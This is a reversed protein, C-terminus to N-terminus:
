IEGKLKEAYYKAERESYFMKSKGSTDTKFTGDSEVKILSVGYINKHNFDTGESVEIIYNKHEITKIVHPTMFNPHEKQWHRFPIKYTM